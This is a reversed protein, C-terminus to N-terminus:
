IFADKTLLLCEKLFMFKALVVESCYSLGFDHLVDCVCKYLANRSM